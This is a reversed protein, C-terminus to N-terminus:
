RSIKSLSFNLCKGGRWWRMWGPRARLPSERFRLPSFKFTGRSPYNELSAVDFFRRHAEEKVAEDGVGEGRQYMGRAGSCSCFCLLQASSLEIAMHFPISTIQNPACGWRQTARRRRVRTSNYGGRHHRKYRQRRWQGRRKSTNM